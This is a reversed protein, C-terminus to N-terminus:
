IDLEIPRDPDVQATIAEIFGSPGDPSQSVENLLQDLSDYLRWRQYPDVIVIREHRTLYAVYDHDETLWRGTFAKKVIGADGVDSEVDVIIREMDNGLRALHARHALEAELAQQCVASVNLKPDSKVREHLEDPLYITM